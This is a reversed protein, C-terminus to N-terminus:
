GCLDFVCVCVCLHSILYFLLSFLPQPFSDVNYLQEAHWLELKRALKTHKLSLFTENDNLASQLSVGTRDEGREEMRREEGELARHEEDLQRGAPNQSPEM